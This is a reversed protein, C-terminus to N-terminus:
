RAQVLVRFSRGLHNPHTLTQFQRTCNSTWSGFGSNANWAQGAIGTLFREQAEFVESKLGAQRGASQITTFNVHATLDQEGPHALVDTKLQHRQYARLTGDKRDPTLFEEATLGYDLTLLKGEGLLGAAERWWNEAAPCFETTFGDPLVAVLEPPVHSMFRSAHDSQPLRTWVFHERNIAV